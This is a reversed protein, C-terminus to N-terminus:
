AAESQTASHDAVGIAAPAKLQMAAFRLIIARVPIYKGQGENAAKARRIGSCGGLGQVPTQRM